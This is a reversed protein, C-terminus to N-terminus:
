EEDFEVNSIESNCEPCFWWDGNATQRSYAIERDFEELGCHPCHIIQKKCLEEM